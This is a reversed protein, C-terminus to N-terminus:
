SFEAFQYVIAIEIIFNSYAFTPFIKNRLPPPVCGKSLNLHADGKNLTHLGTAEPYLSISWDSFCINNLDNKM